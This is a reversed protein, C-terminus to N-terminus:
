PMVDIGWVRWRVMRYCGERSTLVAHNGIPLEQPEPESLTGNLQTHSSSPQM